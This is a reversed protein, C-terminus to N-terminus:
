PLAPLLEPSGSARPLFSSTANGVKPSRTPSCHPRPLTKLPPLAPPASSFCLDLLDATGLAHHPQSFALRGPCPQQVYCPWSLCLPVPLPRPVSPARRAPTRRSRPRLGERHLPVRYHGHWPQASSQLCQRGLLPSLLADLASGPSQTCLRVLPPRVPAQRCNCTILCSSEM